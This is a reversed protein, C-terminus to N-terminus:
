VMIVSFFGQAWSILMKVLEDILENVFHTGRDSQIMAPVHYRGVINILVHAAM